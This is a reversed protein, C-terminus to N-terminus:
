GEGATPGYNEFPKQHSNIDTPHPRVWLNRFTCVCDCYSLHLQPFSTTLVVFLVKWKGFIIFTRDHTLTVNSCSRPFIQTHTYAHARNTSARVSLGFPTCSLLRYSSSLMRCSFSKTRFIMEPCTPIHLYNMSIFDWTQLLLYIFYLM